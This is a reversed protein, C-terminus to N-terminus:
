RIFESGTNDNYETFREVTMHLDYKDRLRAIEDMMPSAHHKDIAQQNEWKDILLVTNKGGFPVFYEYRLNGSENRIKEATGSEEMERAFNLASDGTGTYYINITISM